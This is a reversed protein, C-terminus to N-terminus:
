VEMFVPCSKQSNTVRYAQGAIVGRFLIEQQRVKMIGCKTAHLIQLLGIYGYLAAQSPIPM